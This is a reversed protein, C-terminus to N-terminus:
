KNLEIFDDTLFCPMSDGMDLVQIEQTEADFQVRYQQQPGEKTVAQKILDLVSQAFNMCVNPEWPRSLSQRVARPIDHTRIDEMGVLIGSNDRFGVTINRIGAIFSQAWFRLLKHREFREKKRPTDLPVHTKLERYVRNPFQSPKPGDICDIEASALVTHPGLQTQFVSCYESNTNVLRHQRQRLEWELQGNKHLDQIPQSVVCLNEFKYGSYIMRLHNETLSLRQSVLESTVNEEIYITQSLRIANMSWSERTEYPTVFMRTLMGRYLVFHIDQLSQPSIHPIAQLVGDIHHNITRDREIHHEFGDFLRAPFQPPYYFSLEQDTPHFQHSSDYSFSFLENPEAFKPCARRYKRLPHLSFKAVLM